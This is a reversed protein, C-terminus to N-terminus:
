LPTITFYPLFKNHPSNQGAEYIFLAKDDDDDDDDDDDIKKLVM